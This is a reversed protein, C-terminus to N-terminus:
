PAATLTGVAGMEMARMSHDVFLYNGPQRLILDFVVGEGPSVAYTSVGTLAHLQDGDPYVSEFIAGIVHFASAFNPGADVFYLRVRQGVRTKLPQDNYQFAEGNFVMEDPTAAMMKDFDGTLM